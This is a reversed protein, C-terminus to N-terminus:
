QGCAWPFAWAWPDLQFCKRKNWKKIIRLSCKQIPDGAKRWSFICSAAVPPDSIDWRDAAADELLELWGFCQPRCPIMSSPFRSWSSTLDGSLSCYIGKGSGAPATLEPQSWCGSSPPCMRWGVRNVSGLLQEAASCPILLDMRKGRNKQGISGRQFSTGECIFYVSRLLDRNAYVQTKAWWLVYYLNSLSVKGKEWRKASCFM